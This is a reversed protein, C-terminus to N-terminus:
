KGHQEWYPGFLEEEAPKDEPITNVVHTINIFHKYSLNESISNNAWSGCGMSLTFNMGNNFGGGTAFTHPQNIIVRVVKLERALQHPREMDATHIGVSHGVGKVELVARVREIAADFNAAKYVTLVLSLKEDAFYPDMEAGDDEVMFFRCKAAEEPLGVNRVLVDPDKAIVARDLHGNVWLKEKIMQMEAASCRYGGADQLAKIAPEYIEELITVSNESSCSTSNDFCKSLRIKEAADPLDASADIIVPVNGAGVGIVPKGVQYAKGLIDQAGTGVIMDCQRMLAEAVSFSIPPTLVQVLDPSHGARELEARILEITRTTPGLAAPSPAIIMANRGKIAMMAKNVPTAAPNTAPTIAAVLGIPKGYKVLGKEPIEEIIGVTKARLLDRLTGFTKRQNKTIKDPVNGLGTAEVAMEALESAHSPQYIAWAIARVADDVTEQDAEAFAAQAARGRAVVEVVAAPVDPKQETM